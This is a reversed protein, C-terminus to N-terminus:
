WSHQVAVRDAMIPKLHNEILKKHTPHNAYVRYAAEDDFDAVVAADYNDDALGADRGFRYQRIEPIAAPLGRLNAFVDNIQNPTADDTWNFLVIHSFM